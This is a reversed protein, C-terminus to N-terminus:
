CMVFADEYIVWHYALSISQKGKSARPLDFYFLSYYIKIWPSNKNSAQIFKLVRFCEKLDGGFANTIMNM